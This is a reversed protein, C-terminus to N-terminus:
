FDDPYLFSAPTEDAFRSPDRWASREAEGIARTDERM